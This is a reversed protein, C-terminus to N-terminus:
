GPESCAAVVPRFMWALSGCDVETEGIMSFMTQDQIYIILWFKIKGRRLLHLGPYFRVAAGRDNIASIQQYCLFM